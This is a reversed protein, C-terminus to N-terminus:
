TGQVPRGGFILKQGCVLGRGRNDGLGPNHFETLSPTSLQAPTSETFLRGKLARLTGPIPSPNVGKGPHCSGM